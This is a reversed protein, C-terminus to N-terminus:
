GNSVERVCSNESYTCSSSGITAKLHTERQHASYEFSTHDVVVSGDATSVTYSGPYEYAVKFSQYAAFSLEGDSSCSVDTVLPQRASAPPRRLTFFTTHLSARKTLYCHIPALRVASYFREASYMTWGLPYQPDHEMSYNYRAGYNGDIRMVWAEEHDETVEFLECDFTSISGDNLVGDTPWSCGFVNGSPLLDADGFISSNYGVNHSWEITAVGRSIGSGSEPVDLRVALLRSYGM